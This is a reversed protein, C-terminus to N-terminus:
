SSQLLQFVTKDQQFTFVPENSSTNKRKLPVWQFQHEDPTLTQNKNISITYYFSVLQDSDCFASAIFYDTVYFLSKITITVGLEEQWERQLAAQIGEGYEVGGGPFKTLQQGKYWEKSILVSQNNVLLGYARLNFRNIRDNM